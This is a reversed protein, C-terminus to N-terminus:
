TYTGTATITATQEGVNSDSPIYLQINIDIADMSDNFQLPSCVTTNSTTFETYSTATNNVCAGTEGAADSVKYKFSPSTGGLYDAAVKDAKLGLSVNVNGINELTLGSSTASWTGDTVTGETNLTAGAAGNNVAGSNFNITDTTFNIAASSSVTVNVVATDTVAAYGTFQMGISVLSAVIVLIAICSIVDEKSFKM